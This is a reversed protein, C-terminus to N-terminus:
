NTHNSSALSSSSSSSSSSSAGHAASLSPSSSPSSAHPHPSPSVTSSSSASPHSMRLLYSMSEHALRSLLTGSALPLLGQQRFHHFVLSLSGSPPAFPLGSLCPESPRM